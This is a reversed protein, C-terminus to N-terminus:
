RCKRIGILKLFNFLIVLALLAFGLALAFKFLSVPISLTSSRESLTYAELGDVSLRWTILAFILISLLQSVIEFLRKIKEPLRGYLLDISIHGGKMGTYAISFCVILAFGYQVIEYSGTVPYKIFRGVTDVVLLLTLFVLIIGGTRSFVSCIKYIIAVSNLSRKEV